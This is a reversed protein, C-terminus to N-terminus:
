ELEVVAPQAAATTVMLAECEPRGAEVSGRGTRLEHLVDRTPERAFRYRNRRELRFERVDACRRAAHSNRLPRKGVDDSGKCPTQAVQAVRAENHQDIFGLIRQVLGSDPLSPLTCLKKTRERAGM